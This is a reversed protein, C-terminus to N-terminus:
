MELIRTDMEGQTDLCFILYDKGGFTRRKRMKKDVKSPIIDERDSLSLFRIVLDLLQGTGIMEVVVVDKLCHVDSEQMYGKQGECFM